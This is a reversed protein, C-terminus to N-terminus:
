IASFNQFAAAREGVDYRSNKNRDEFAGVMYVDPKLIVSFPGPRNLAIRGKIVIPVGTQAPKIMIVIMLPEGQWGEVELKGEIQSLRDLQANESRLRRFRACGAALVLM